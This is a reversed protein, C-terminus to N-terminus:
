ITINLEEMAQRLALMPEGTLKEIKSKVQLLREPLESPDENNILTYADEVSINIGYVKYALCILEIDADPMRGISKGIYEPYTKKIQDKIQNVEEKYGSPKRFTYPDYVKYDGVFEENERIIGALQQMRRVENIQQKM